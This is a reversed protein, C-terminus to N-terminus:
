ARGPGRGPGHSGCVSGTGGRRDPSPETARARLGRRGHGPLSHAYERSRHAHGGGIYGSPLGPNLPSWGTGGDTSKFLGSGPIGEYDHAGMYRIAPNDPDILPTGACVNSPGTSEWLAGDSKKYLDGPCFSTYLTDCPTSHDISLSGIAYVPLNYTGGIGICSSPPGGVRYIGRNTAAYTMGSVPDSKFFNIALGELGSHFWTEGGDRSMFVGEYQRDIHPKSYGGAYLIDPNWPDAAVITITDNDASHGIHGFDVRTGLSWTVGGDVSKSVYPGYAPVHMTATNVPDIAPCTSIGSLLNWTAGRDTSKFLGPSTGVAYLTAPTRPDPALCTIPRLPLGKNVARWSNGEDASKFVGDGYTSMFLIAPSRPDIAVSTVASSVPGRDLRTWTAGADTSRFVGYRNAAFVHAPDGPVIAIFSVYSSSDLFPVGNSLAEWNAGGDLSRLVGDSGGAYITTSTRPDVVLVQIYSTLTSNAVFWSGGGDTSKFITRYGTSSWSEFSAYLVAPTSPDIALALLNGNTLGASASTWTKGAEVSKFVGSSTVAYLTTPTAPDIVLDVISLHSPEPLGANVPRWNNGADVTKFVGEGGAAMGVYVTRADGPDIVLTRIVGSPLNNTVSTWSEGGDTSKFVESRPAFTTVYMYLISPDAAAIAVKGAYSGEPGNTTWVNIGAVAISAAGLWSMVTLSIVSRYGIWLSRSM